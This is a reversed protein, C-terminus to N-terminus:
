ASQVNDLVKATAQVTQAVEETLPALEGNGTAVEAVEAAKALQTAHGAFFHLLAKLGSAIADATHEIILEATETNM